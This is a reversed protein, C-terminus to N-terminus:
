VNAVEAPVTAGVGMGAHLIEQSERLMETLMSLATALSHEHLSGVIVASGIACAVPHQQCTACASISLLAAILFSIRASRARQRTSNETFM